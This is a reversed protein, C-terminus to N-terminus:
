KDGLDPLALRKRQSMQELLAANQVALEFCASTMADEWSAEGHLFQDIWQQLLPNRKGLAM